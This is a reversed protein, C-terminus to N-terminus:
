PSIGQSSSTSSSSSFFLSPNGGQPVVSLLNELHEAMLREAQIADGGAIADAIATHEAIVPGLRGPEPLRLRRYRDVQVKVQQAFTWLGPFGAMDAILGHFTEDAEHFGNLDGAAETEQQLVLNARLRAIQSRTARQTAHRVAAGELATRIVIAEPLSDLPIRAVFTGSQPFIEILGDDSLRLLAERVPTRSVGFAEAILKEVIAEGPLRKLEVIDARLAQYIATTASGRRASGRPPAASGPQSRTAAPATKAIPIM